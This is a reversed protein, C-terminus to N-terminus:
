SINELIGETWLPKILSCPFTILKSLGPVWLCAVQQPSQPLSIPTGCATQSASCAWGPKSGLDSAPPRTPSRAGYFMRTNCSGCGVWHPLLLTTATPCVTWSRGLIVRCLLLQDWRTEMREPPASLVQQVQCDWRARSAMGALQDKLVRRARFASYARLDCLARRWGGILGNCGMLM